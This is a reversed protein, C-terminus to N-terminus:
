VVVIINDIDNRNSSVQLLSRTAEPAWKIAEQLIGSCRAAFDGVTGERGEMEEHVMIKYSTGPVQIEM